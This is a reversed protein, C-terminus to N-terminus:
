FESTKRIKALYKELIPIFLAIPSIENVIIFAHVMTGQTVEFPPGNETSWKLGSINKDNKLLDVTVAISPGSASFEEALKSNGLTALIAADSTPFAATEAVNGRIFGFEEAVVTSPIIRVSNGIKVKKGNLAQVYLKAQLANKDHHTAIAILPSSRELYKGEAARIEIVTGSIPSTINTSLMYQLEQEKLKHETNLIEADNNQKRQELGDIIRQKEVKLGELEAQTKSITQLANYYEQHQNELTIETIIGRKFLNKYSNLLKHHYKLRKQSIQMLEQMTNGQKEIFLLNSAVHEQAFKELRSKEDNLKERLLQLNQIKEYFIRDEVSAIVDGKTIIDPM